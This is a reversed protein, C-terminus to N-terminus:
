EGERVRWSKGHAETDRRHASLDAAVSDVKKELGDVKKEVVIVKGELRDFRSELGDMRGELRDMKEGLMQQGEVVLDLKHQVSEELVGIRQDFAEIVQGQFRSMLRSLMEEVQDQDKKEM